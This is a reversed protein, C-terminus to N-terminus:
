EGKLPTTRESSTGSPSVAADPEYGALFVLNGRGVQVRTILGEEEMSSLKRSVSSSSWKTEEVLDSQRMRGGSQAVLQQIQEQDTLLPDDSEPAASQEVSESTGNSGNQSPAPPETGADRPPQNTETDLSGNTVSGTESGDPTRDHTQKLASDGRGDGDSRNSGDGSWLSSVWTKFETLPSHDDGGSDRRPEHPREVDPARDHTSQDLTAESELDPEVSDHDHPADVRSKSGVLTWEDEGSETQSVEAVVDFLVSLTNITEEDHITPDMQYYGIAGAAQVRHILIHLYRFATDFDIYELLITLTQVSIVSQGGEDQWRKLEDGLHTVVDIPDQPSARVTNITGPRQQDTSIEEGPESGNHIFTIENPPGNNAAEWDTLWMSPPQTYTVVAMNTRSPNTTSLLESFAKTGHPTLPSLVLVNTGEQIHERKFEELKM